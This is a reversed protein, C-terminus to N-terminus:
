PAKRKVFFKIMSDTFLIHFFGLGNIFLQQIFNILVNPILLLFLCRYPYAVTLALLLSLLLYFVIKELVTKPTNKENLRDYLM